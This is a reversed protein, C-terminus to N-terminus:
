QLGSHVRQESIQGVPAMLGTAISSLIDVFIPWATHTFFFQRGMASPISHPLQARWQGAPAMSITGLSGSSSFEAIIGATSSSYQM